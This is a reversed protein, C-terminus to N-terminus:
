AIVRAAEKVSMGCYWAVLHRWQSASLMVPSTERGLAADMRSRHFTWDENAFPLTWKVVQHARRDLQTEPAGFSIQVGIVESAISAVQRMTLNRGGSCHLVELDSGQDGRSLLGVADDIVRDVPIIDPRGHEAINLRVEGAGADGALQVAEVYGYLGFSNRRTWGTRSHGVVITPRFITVPVRSDRHLHHLGHEACWKTTQYANICPSSVHLEERVDGGGMGTTYATSVYYFRRCNPARDAIKRYLATTGCVNTQFSQPLNMNWFSMEAACHWALNVANLDAHDLAVALDASGADVVTLRRLSQPGVDVEIGDAADLISNRTRSGDPDNRSISVISNGRALLAAAVASGIFGTAGTILITDM